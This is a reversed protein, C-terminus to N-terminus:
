TECAPTHREASAAWPALAERLRDPITLKEFSAPDVFVHRM